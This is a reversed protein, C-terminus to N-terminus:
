SRQPAFLFAGCALLGVAGFVLPALWLGRFSDVRFEDPRNPNYRIQVPDGRDYRGYGSQYSTRGRQEDGSQDRYAVTLAYTRGSRRKYKSSVGVVTADARIGHEALASSTLFQYFAIGLCVVGVVLAWPGRLPIRRRRSRM